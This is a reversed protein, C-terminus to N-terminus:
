TFKIVDWDKKKNKEILKFGYWVILMIVCLLIIKPFSFGLM